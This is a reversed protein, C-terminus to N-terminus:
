DRQDNSVRRDLRYGFGTVANIHGGHEAEGLKSRLRRVLLDVRDSTIDAAYGYVNNLIQDRSVAIGANLVLYELLKYELSSLRVVEGASKVERAETNVEIPGFRVVHGREAQPEAPATAARLKARRIHAELRAMLEGRRFPKIVFDDAGAEFGRAISAEDNRASIFMILVDPDVRRIDRCVEIGPHDPLEWDLLVAVAKSAQYARLADAATPCEVARFGEATLTASLLAAADANDDVVLVTGRNDPM